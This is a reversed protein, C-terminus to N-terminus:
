TQKPNEIVLTLGDRITTTITLMMDTMIMTMMDKM